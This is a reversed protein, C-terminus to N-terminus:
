KEYKYEYLSYGDKEGVYVFGNTQYFRNLFPNDAICDLRIKQIEPFRISQQCWTLLASGLQHNAFDRNIALRHLYVAENQEDDSLDWLNKDWASPEKLLMVMGAITENMTAIFVDGRAVAEETRHSDIGELLGNWQSSGNAKFWKATNVLLTMIDETHIPQAQQMMFTTHSNTQLHENTIGMIIGGKAVIIYHFTKYYM